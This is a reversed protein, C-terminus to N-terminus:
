RTALVADPKAEIIQAMSAMPVGADQMVARAATVGSMLVMPVGPGPNASGGCLYLGKLVSSRNKPKFGGRLKGHSALGYIAGGEANYWQDIMGPHLFRDVV